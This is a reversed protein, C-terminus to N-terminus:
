KVKLTKGAFDIAGTQTAPNDLSLLDLRAALYICVGVAGLVAITIYLNKM